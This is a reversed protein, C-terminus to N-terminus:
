SQRKSEIARLIAARAAAHRNLPRKEGSVASELLAKKSLPESAAAKKRAGDKPGLVVEVDAANRYGEQTHYRACGPVPCSHGSVVARGLRLWCPVMQLNTHRDCTPHPHKM